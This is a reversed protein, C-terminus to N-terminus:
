CCHTKFTKLIRFFSVGAFFDFILAGRTKTLCDQVIRVRVLIECIVFTSLYPLLSLKAGASEWNPVVVVRFVDQAGLIWLCAMGLRCCIWQGLWAPKTFVFFDRLNRRFPFQGAVNAPFIVQFFSFTCGVHVQFSFFFDCANLNSHTCSALSTPLSYRWLHDLNSWAWTQCACKPVLMESSATGAISCM